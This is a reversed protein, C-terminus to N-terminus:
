HIIQNLKIFNLEYCRKQNSGRLIEQNTVTLDDGVIQLRDGLRKKMLKFGDRDSEPLGDEISIIPYKNVLKKM